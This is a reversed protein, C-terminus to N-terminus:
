CSAKGDSLNLVSAIKNATAVITGTGDICSLLGKKEFYPIMYNKVYGAYISYTNKSVTPEISGLWNEAITCFPIAMGAEESNPNEKLM